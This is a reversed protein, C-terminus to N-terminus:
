LLETNINGHGSAWHMIAEETTDERNLIKKLEGKYMIAIRDALMLLEPLESSILLIGMGQLALNKILEYIEFKSGVDVGHTPEDVMLVDPNLTLWRSLVVKQQNGGSLKDIKQEVSPTRIALLKVYEESRSRNMRQDNWTGSQSAAMINEEVTMGSFIGQKIREEPVYTIGNRIADTPKRVKLLATNKYIEGSIISEDGFIAKAIETRGSGVLGAFGLIEGKHLRFSINKFNNGSIDRVDLAVDGSTFHQRRITQLERGVMMRIIEHIPTQQAQVTGQLKGDKLVSVVDAVRQIENMRHTIYIIAVGQKRLEGIINFLIETERHTISATPEDLILLKSPTALAKAIEVMQKQPPSLTDVVTHTSIDIQLRNLLEKASRHLQSYDITGWMTKPHNAPFINEAVNLTEVLSREQYVISIGFSRAQTANRFVIRQDDILIDGEDAQLNGALINMLTSKGAGNEGVIAHVEGKRITLSVASLAKVGPFSKSINQLQLM